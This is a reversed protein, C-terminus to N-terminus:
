WPQNFTDDADVALLTLAPDVARLAPVLRELMAAYETGSMGGSSNGPQAPYDPYRAQSAIENGLYVIRM